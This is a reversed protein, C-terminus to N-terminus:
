QIRLVGAIGRDAGDNKGSEIRLRTDGSYFGMYLTYNGPRYSSPVDFTQRDVIVDGQSWLAIPYKGDVPEHDGHIRNGQGDVHVFVKYGAPGSTLARFYWTLKFSEGAGVYGDHPLDLDYGLLEIRKEFNIPAPHQIRAPPADIVVDRLFNEDPRGPIPQNTALVVRANRADAVFLHTRTRKRFDRDITALEAAPFAAWRRTSAGLHDILKGISALEVVPGKAYYAAARGGVNYEGLEEGPGALANYSAYVERPSFHESLAPLYGQAAYVGFLAGSALLPVFRWAGLKSFLWLLLQAAALGAAIAPPLFTLRRVWRTALTPMRLQEPIAYALVGFLVTAGLVLALAVIWARLAGGLRWQARLFRYPAALDLQRVSERTVGLGFFASLGFLCLLLAWTRKPNFVSPMEFSALPLGSVPGSPYLAYDRLILGALFLAALAMGFFAQGERELDRLFLAVLAALAVVPLFAVEGGYRSVFLTQVGYGLAAWGVALLGLETEEAPVHAAADSTVPLRATRQWLRGLALPLLASWPAFAHFVHELVADFTPPAGSSVRGGIWLSPEASDHLVDRLVLASLAVVLASAGVLLGLPRQRARFTLAVLVAAALPPLAGLLAGRTMVALATVALSAAVWAWRTWAPQTREQAPRQPARQGVALAQLACLALGAQVAFGPAEGLMARANFVFLPSTGTILAAYAGTRADGFRAGLLYAFVTTLVGALAIPLRGAWEHIGFWQFGKSVLWISANLDSGAPEGSALRRAADASGLEWPDWIGFASLRVLLVVAVFGCAALGWLAKRTM